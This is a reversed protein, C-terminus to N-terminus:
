ARVMPPPPVLVSLMRVIGRHSAALQIGKQVCSVTHSEKMLAKVVDENGRECAIHLCYQRSPGVVQVASMGLGMLMAAASAAGSYSAASLSTHGNLVRAEIGAGSLRRSLMAAVVDDLGKECAKFLPSSGNKDKEAIMREAGPGAQDMLALAAETQSRVCAHWLANRGNADLANANAGHRVLMLAIQGFGEACAMHLPTSGAPGAGNIGVFDEAAPAAEAAAAEAAPEAAESDAYARWGSDAVADELARHLVSFAITDESANRAAIHADFARNPARPTEDMSAPVEPLSMATLGDDDEENAFVTDAEAAERGHAEIAALAAQRQAEMAKRAARVREETDGFLCSQRKAEHPFMYGNAIMEREGMEAPLPVEEGRGFAATRALLRNATTSPLAGLGSARRRQVQLLLMVARSQGNQCALSMAGRGDGLRAAPDAGHALLLRMMGVSGFQAAMMLATQGDPGRADVEAGRAALAHAARVDNFRVAELMNAREAAAAPERRPAAPEPLILVQEWAGETASTDSDMTSRSEWTEERRPASQPARERRPATQPAATAATATQQTAVISRSGRTEERRPAVAVAVAAATPLIPTETPLIPAGERTEETQQQTQQTNVVTMENSNSDTAQQDNDTAHQSRGAGAAGAELVAGGRV